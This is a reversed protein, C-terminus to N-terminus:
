KKKSIKELIERQSMFEGVEYTGSTIDCQFVKSQIFFVTADDIINEEELEKGVTKITDDSDIYLTIVRKSNPNKPESFFIHYGIDYGKYIGFAVFVFIVMLISYKIILYPINTKKKKRSKIETSKAKETTKTKM